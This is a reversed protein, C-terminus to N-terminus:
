GSESCDGLPASVPPRPILLPLAGAEDSPADVNLVLRGPELRWRRDTESFALTLGAYSLWDNPGARFRRQVPPSLRLNLLTCPPLDGVSISGMPAPMGSGDLPASITVARLPVPARNQISVDLGPTLASSTERGEVAWIAVRSSYVRQERLLVYSNIKQQDHNLDRQGSWAFWTLIVAVVAVLAAAWTARAQGTTARLMAREMKPDPGPQAPVTSPSVGGGARHRGSWVLVVALVTCVVDLLTADAARPKANRVLDSM